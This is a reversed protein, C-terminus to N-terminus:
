GNGDEGLEKEFENLGVADWDEFGVPNLFCPWESVAFDGRDSGDFFADTEQTVRGPDFLFGSGGGVEAAVCLLAAGFSLM